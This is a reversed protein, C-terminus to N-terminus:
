TCPTLSSNCSKFLDIYIVLAFAELRYNCSRFQPFHALNQNQSSETMTNHPRRSQRVWIKPLFTNSFTALLVAGVRVCRCGTPAQKQGAEDSISVCWELPTIVTLIRKLHGSSGLGGTRGLRQSCVWSHRDCAGVGTKHERACLM